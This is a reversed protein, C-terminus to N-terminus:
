PAETEHTNAIVTASRDRMRLVNTIKQVLSLNGSAKALGLRDKLQQDTLSHLGTIEEKLSAVPAAPSIPKAASGLSGKPKLPSANATGRPAPTANSSLLGTVSSQLSVEIEALVFNVLAGALSRVAANVREAPTLAITVDEVAATTPAAKLRSKKASRDPNSVGGVTKASKLWPFFSPYYQGRADPKRIVVKAVAFSEKVKETYTMTAPLNVFVASVAAKQEKTLHHYGRSM